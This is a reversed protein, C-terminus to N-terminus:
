DQARHRGGAVLSASDTHNVQGSGISTLVSIATATAAIGLMDTWPLDWIATGVALGAVLSQAFTKVARELTDAWFKHSLM